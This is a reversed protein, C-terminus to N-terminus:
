IAGGFLFEELIRTADLLENQLDGADPLSCFNDNKLEKGTTANASPSFVATNLMLSSSQQVVPLPKKSASLNKNGDVTMKDKIQPNCIPIGTSSEDVLTNQHRDAGDLPEKKFSLFRMGSPIKLPRKLFKEVLNEKMDEHISFTSKSSSSKPTDCPALCDNMVNVQKRLNSKENSPPISFNNLATTSTIELNPVKHSFKCKDGRICMGKSMFNHCPYKSLQHDFPCDEGKLCIDCAFYKCPQSKTLPTTDHSFKCLNGQQCRGKLYFECNNVPKPKIIPQLKLRKVGQEREKQVRKRKKAKKKKAKREETM